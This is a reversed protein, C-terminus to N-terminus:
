DALRGEFRIPSFSSNCIPVQMFADLNIQRVTPLTRVATGLFQRTFSIREAGDAESALAGFLFVRGKGLMAM